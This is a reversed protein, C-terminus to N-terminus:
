TENEFAMENLVELVFNIEAPDDSLIKHNKLDVWVGGICIREPSKSEWIEEGKEDLLM